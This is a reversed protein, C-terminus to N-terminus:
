LPYWTVYPFFLSVEKSNLMLLFTIGKNTHFINFLIQSTLVWKDSKMLAETQGKKVKIEVAEADSKIAQAQSILQAYEEKYLAISKELDMILKNVEEQKKKNGEAKQQLRDLENRLPEVRNLMDAYSIQLYIYM